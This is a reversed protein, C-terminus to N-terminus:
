LSLSKRFYEYTSNVEALKVTALALIRWDVQDRIWLFEQLWGSGTPTRLRLLM